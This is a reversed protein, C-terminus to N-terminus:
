INHLFKMTSCDELDVKGSVQELTIRSKTGSGAISVLGTENLVDVACLLRAYNDIGRKSLISYMVEFDGGFGNQERLYRYVTEIDKREPAIRQKQEESLVDRRKLAEHLREDLITQKRDIGSPKIAVAVASLSQRNRYESVSLKVAIDVMDGRKYPFFADQVSFLMVEVSGQENGVILKQHAGNKLHVVDKIVCGMVGIVPLPNGEGFPEIMQAAEVLGLNLHKAQLECDIRLKPVPMMEFRDAYENIAKRFAPINETKITLGAAQEHGGYIELLDSCHRLAEYLSFGALSRGSAHAIDGDKSIIICPKGYGECMRSAYIGIIGVNWGEGDIVLVKDNLLNPNENLMKATESAMQIECNQRRNNDECLARAYDDAEEADESLLLHLARDALGMRGAANIRPALTYAVDSAKLEKEGMGAANILSDVGTRERSNIAELGLRVILRNEDVLPMVDAITGMAALDAYNEAVIMWDGCLACLLKFVVGAGCYNKFGSTDDKRHPDVVAVAEPIVDGPQHHDTIVMDIGLSAAYRAEEVANVGNDVTIILTAGREAIMDISSKRIGYGDKVRDPIIAFANGGNMELFSFLMATSTIGDVDYDGFIAIKEFSELAAEIRAAAKDMDKIEFPDRFHPENMGLMMKIQEDELFGRTSLLHATFGPVDFKEAIERSKEKKPAVSEWIAHAM